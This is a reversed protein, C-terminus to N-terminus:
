PLYLPAATGYLGLWKFIVFQPIITMQHPVMLTALLLMFLVERGRFRVIAFVFAGMSCTLVQGITSIVAIRLSNGILTALDMDTWAQTFNSLTFERPILRHDFQDATMKLATSAMWVFPGIMLMSGLLLHEPGRVMILRNRHPLPLSQDASIDRNTFKWAQRQWGIKTGGHQATFQHLGRSFM